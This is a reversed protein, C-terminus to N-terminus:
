HIVTGVEDRIEDSRYEAEHQCFPCKALLNKDPKMLAGETDLMWPEVPEILLPKKCYRCTVVLWREGPQMNVKDSM